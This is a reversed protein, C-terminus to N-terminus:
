IHWIPPMALGLRADHGNRQEDGRAVQDGVAAVVARAGVRGIAIEHRGGVQVRLGHFERRSKRGRPERQSFHALRQAVAFARARCEVLRQGGVRVIAVTRGQMERSEARGIRRGRRQVTVHACQEVLVRRAEIARKLVQVVRRRRQQAIGDGSVPVRKPM